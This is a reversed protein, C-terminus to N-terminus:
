FGTAIKELYRDYASQQVEMMEEIGLDVLRQQFEDWQAETVAEGVIWDIITEEIYTSVDTSHLNYRESEETTFTVARPLTYLDDGMTTFVDLCQWQEDTFNVFSKELDMVAPIFTTSNHSAYIYSAANFMLKEPNDLVLDSFVPEGNEDYVFGEGEVGYNFLLNGEDTFMYEVVSLLGIVDEDPMDARFAWAASGNQFVYSINDLTHIEDSDEFKLYPTGAIKTHHGEADFKAVNVSVEATGGWASFTGDATGALRAGTDTAGNYFETEIIGEHYWDNILQFYEFMEPQQYGYLVKGDVVYAGAAINYASLLSAEVGEAAISFQAGHTDHAKVLYEHFEDVTTAIDMGFEDYWDGNTILGWQQSRASADNLFIALTALNGKDTVQSLYTNPDETLKAWYNPAYEKVLDHIDRIVENEIADDYGASYTNMQSIIDCYDGSAIMINFLETFADSNVSTIDFSINLRDTLERFITLETAPDSIYTNAANSLAMWLSYTTPEDFGYKVPQVAEEEVQPEQAEDEAPAAEAPAQSEQVESTEPASSPEETQQTEGSCGALLAILVALVLLLSLVKKSKM